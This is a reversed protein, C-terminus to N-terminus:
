LELLELEGTDPERSVHGEVIADAEVGAADEAAVAARLLDNARAISEGRGVCLITATAALRASSVLAGDESRFELGEADATGLEKAVHERLTAIDSYGDLPLQLRLGAACQVTISPKLTGLSVPCALVRLFECSGIETSREVLPSPVKPIWCFGRRACELRLTALSCPRPGLTADPRGHASMRLVVPTIERPGLTATLPDGAASDCTICGQLPVADDPVHAPDAALWVCSTDPGLSCDLPLDPECPDMPEEEDPDTAYFLLRTDAILTFVNDRGRVVTINQAARGHKGLVVHELIVQHNGATTVFEPVSGFADTVGRPVGDVLVSIGDFMECCCGTVVRLGVKAVEFMELKMGPALAAADDLHAGCHVIAIESVPIEYEKELRSKVREVTGFEIVPLWLPPYTKRRVCLAPDLYGVVTPCALLRLYECGGIEEAREVLPPPDRQRWCYGSRSAEFQLSSLSVRMSHGGEAETAEGPMLLFETVGPALSTAMEKGGKGIGRVFGSDVPLVDGQVQDCSGCIWLLLTGVVSATVGDEDDEVSPEQLQMQRSSNSPSCTALLDQEADPDAKSAFIFVRIDALVTRQNQKGHVINVDLLRGDAGFCPHQLRVQRYGARATVECSGCDDSTGQVEGDVQVIVGELGYSNDDGAAAEPVIINIELKALLGASLQQGRELSFDEDYPQRDDGLVVIDQPDVNGLEKSVRARISEVTNYDELPLCLEPGDCECRVVIMPKLSGMRIPGDLLRLFLCSARGGSGAVALQGPGEPCWLVDSEAEVDLRLSALPCPSGRVANGFSAPLALAMSPANRHLPVNLRGESTQVSLIGTVPTAGPPIHELNAALWVTTSETVDEGDDFGPPLCTRYVFFCAEAFFVEEKTESCGAHTRLCVRGQSAGDAQLASHSLYVSHEGRNTAIRCFGDVDTAGTRREDVVELAECLEGTSVCDPADDFQVDCLQTGGPDASLVFGLRGTPDAVRVGRKILDRFADSSPGGGMTYDENVRVAVDSVGAHCCKTCVRVDLSASAWVDVLSCAPVPDGGALRLEERFCCFKGAAAAMEEDVQLSLQSCLDDACSVKNAELRVTQPWDEGLGHCRVTVIPELLGVQLPSALLASWSAVDELLWTDSVPCWKHQATDTCQLVIGAAPVLANSLASTSASGEEREPELEIPMIATADLSVERIATKDGISGHRSPKVSVRAAVPQAGIPMHGTQSCLWVGISAERSSSGETQLAYATIRAVATFLITTSLDELEVTTTQTGGLMPHSASVTRSGVPATLECRGTVDTSRTHTLRRSDLTIRAGPIGIDSSGFVVRVELRVLTRLRQGARVPEGPALAGEGSADENALALPTQVQLGLIDSLRALVDGVTPYDEVPLAFERGDIHTATAYPRLVGLTLPGGGLLQAVGCPGGILPSPKVPSFQFSPAEAIVTLDSIPCRMGPPADPNVQLRLPQIQGGETSPAVLDEGTGSIIRGAFEHAGDPITSATGTAQVLRRGNPGDVSFIYIQPEFLLPLEPRASSDALSVMHRLGGSLAVHSVDVIHEGPLVGMAAWTGDSNTTGTYMGNNVSVAIGAMKHGCCATMSRVFLGGGMGGCPGCSQQGKRATTGSGPSSSPPFQVDQLTTGLYLPGRELAMAHLSARHQLPDGMANPSEDDPIRRAFPAIPSLLSFPDESPPRLSSQDHLLEVPGTKLELIGNEVQISEGGAELSGEFPTWTSMQQGRAATLWIDYAYVIGRAAIPVRWCRLKMPLPVQLRPKMSNVTVRQEVWGGTLDEHLLRAVHTGRRLVIWCSGRDNTTARQQEATVEVRVKGVPLRSGPLVVQLSVEPAALTAIELYEQQYLHFVSSTQMQPELEASYYGAVHIRKLTCFADATEVHGMRFTDWPFQMRGRVHLMDGNVMEVQGDFPRANGPLRAPDIDDVSAVIALGGPIEVCWMRFCIDSGFAFSVRLRSVVFAVSQVRMTTHYVRLELVTKLPVNEIQCVGCTGQVVMHVQDDPSCGAATGDSGVSDDPLSAAEQSCEQPDKEVVELTFHKLPEGSPCFVKVVIVARPLTLALRKTIEQPIPWCKSSMKSHLLTAKYGCGELNVQAGWSTGRDCTSPLAAAAEQSQRQDLGSISPFEVVTQTPDNVIDPALLYVEFAGVRSAHHWVELGHAYSGLPKPKAELNCLMEDVELVSGGAQERIHRLLEQSLTAYRQENHRTTLGHHLACSHCREVLIYVGLGYQPPLQECRQILVQVRADLEAAVDRDITNYASQAERQTASLGCPTRNAKLVSHWRRPRRPRRSSSSAQSWSGAAQGYSLPPPPPFRPVNAQLPVSSDLGAGKDRALPLRLPKDKSPASDRASNCGSLGNFAFGQQTPPVRASLPPAGRLSPASLLPAVAAKDVETRLPLARLPPLTQGPLPSAERTRLPPMTRPLVGCWWPPPANPPPVAGNEIDFLVKSFLPPSSGPLPMASLPSLQRESLSTEHTEAPCVASSYANGIVEALPNSNIGPLSRSLSEEFVAERTRGVEPLEDESATGAEDGLLKSDWPEFQSKTKSENQERAQHGTCAIGPLTSSALGSLPRLPPGGGSGDAMHAPLLQNSWIVCESGEQRRSGGNIM